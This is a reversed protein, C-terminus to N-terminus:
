KIRRFFNRIYGSVRFDFWADIVIFSGIVVYLAAIIAMVWEDTM